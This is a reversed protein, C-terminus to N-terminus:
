LFMQLVSSKYAEKVLSSWDYTRVLPSHHDKVIYTYNFWCETERVCVCEERDRM